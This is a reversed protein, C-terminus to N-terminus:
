EGRGARSFCASHDPSAVLCADIDQRAVLERFDHYPRCDQNQYHGNVTNLAHELHAPNLDCLAQAQCDPQNLFNSADGMGQLGCGIVGLVLRPQQPGGKGGRGLASAPIIAPPGRRGINRRSRRAHIPPPQYLCGQGPASQKQRPFM